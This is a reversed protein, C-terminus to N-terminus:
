DAPKIREFGDLPHMVGADPFNRAISEFDAKDGFSLHNITFSNDLSHGKQRLYMVIDGFAHSSIHFQGPVRVAEVFGKINCGQGEELEKEVREAISRRNQNKEEWSEISIESGDSTLRHKHLEGYYDSVNNGLSDELDLGVVDCPMHPLVVDVNIHFTDTDHSSQISIQSSTSPKLYTHVETITLLILVAACVM